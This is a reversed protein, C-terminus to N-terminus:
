VGAIEPLYEPSRGVYGLINGAATAQPLQSYSIFLHGETPVSICPISYKLVISYNHLLEFCHFLGPSLACLGIPWTQSTVQRGAAQSM